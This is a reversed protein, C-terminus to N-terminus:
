FINSSFLFVEGNEGNIRSLEVVLDCLLFCSPEKSDRAQGVIVSFVFLGCDETHLLM